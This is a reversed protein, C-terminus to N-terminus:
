SSSAVLAALLAGPHTRPVLFQWLVVARTSTANYTNPVRFRFKLRALVSGAQWKSNM